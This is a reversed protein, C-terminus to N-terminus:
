RRRVPWREIAVRTRIPEIEAQDAKARDRACGTSTVPPDSPYYVRTIFASPDAFERPVVLLQPGLSSVLADRLRRKM